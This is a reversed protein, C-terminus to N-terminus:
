EDSMVKGLVEGVPVNIFLAMLMEDSNNSLVHEALPPIYAVDGAAVGSEEDAVRLQGRGQMIVILEEADPHVHLEAVHRGGPPIVVHHVFQITKLCAREAPVPTEALRRVPAPQETRDRWKGEADRVMFHVVRKRNDFLVSGITNYVQTKWNAVPM